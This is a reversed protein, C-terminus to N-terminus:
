AKVEQIRIRIWSSKKFASGHLDPDTDAVSTARVMQANPIIM